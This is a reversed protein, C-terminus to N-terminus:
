EALGQELAEVQARIRRAATKVTEPQVEQGQELEAAIADLSDAVKNLARAVNM